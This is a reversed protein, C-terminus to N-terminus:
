CTQCSPIARRTMQDVIGLCPNREGCMGIDTAPTCLVLRKALPTGITHFGTENRLANRFALNVNDCQTFPLVQAVSLNQFQM